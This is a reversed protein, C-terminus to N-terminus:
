YIIRLFGVKYIFNIEFTFKRDSQFKYGRFRKLINNSRNAIVIGGFERL